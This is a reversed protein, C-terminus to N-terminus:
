KKPNVSLYAEIFKDVREKMRERIDKLDPTYGMHETSWTAAFVKIDATRVLSVHQKFEVTIHYIYGGLVGGKLVRPWVQLYPKGPTKEWEDGSLVRIGAQHLKLEVDTRIADHSLGGAVADPELPTEPMVFVGSLGKLANRTQDIDQAYSVGCFVILLTALAFLVRPKM